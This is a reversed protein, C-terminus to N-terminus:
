PALVIEWRVVTASELSEGFEPLLARVSLGRQKADSAALMPAGTTLLEVGSLRNAFV